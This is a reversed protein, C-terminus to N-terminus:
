ISLPFPNLAVQGKIPTFSFCECMMMQAKENMYALDVLLKAALKRLVITTTFTHKIVKMM